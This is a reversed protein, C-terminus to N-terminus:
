NKTFNSGEITNKFFKKTEEKGFKKFMTAVSMKAPPICCFGANRASSGWGIHGAEVLVVDENYKKALSLACSIGTYGGGIVVINTQINKELKNYKNNTDSTTEWYSKVPEDFKYIDEHYLNSM